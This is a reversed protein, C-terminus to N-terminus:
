RLTRALDSGRERLLQATLKIALTRGVPPRVLVFVASFLESAKVAAVAEGVIAYIPKGSKRALTAVGAPAKGELTQADLRGEGSIVIDARQIKEELGIADAVVGFGARLEAGCFNMLGFGLGGAAGAGPRDRFDSGFDRAVVEALNTLARELLEIQGPTAGKQAAFVRTAGRDGLLPNQVDAAAIIKPLRVNEPEAIRTLKTLEAPGNVLEHEQDRGFFRFGLARGMGFGGDNTASGGLGVIIQRAGRRGADAIMEGVGFTTAQTPNQEQSILRRSGAAESMEMVASKSNEMWAYRAEIARGLADHAACSVWEGGLAECIIEATGEGGDAVPAFDIEADPLVDRIGLAINEAVPRASLSGKFKDPAILFRM